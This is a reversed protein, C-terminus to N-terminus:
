YLRVQSTQNCKWQSGIQMKCKGSLRFWRAELDREDGTSYFCGGNQIILLGEIGQKLTIPTRELVAMESHSLLEKDSETWTQFDRQRIARVREIDQQSFVPKSRLNNAYTSNQAVTIIGLQCVRAKCNSQSNLFVAFEERLAVVESYLPNDSLNVASPLRIIWGKPLHTQIDRIIPRFMSAPEANATQPKLRCVGLMTCVLTIGLLSRCKM